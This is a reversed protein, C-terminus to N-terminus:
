DKCETNKFADYIQEKTMGTFIMFLNKNPIKKLDEQKMGLTQWGVIKYNFFPMFDPTMGIQILDKYTVGFALLEDASWRMQIIQDISAHLHKIPNLPFCAMDRCFTLNVPTNNAWENADPQLKKLEEPTLELSRLFPWTLNKNQIVHKWQLVLSPKMWGHIMVAQYPTLSITKTNDNINM